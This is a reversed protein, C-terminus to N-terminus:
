RGIVGAALLARLAAIADQPHRGRRLEYVGLGGLRHVFRDWGPQGAAYPQDVALLAPVQEWPLRRLLRSSDPATEASVVVAGALRLPAPPPRGAGERLDAEFKAVGSRRHIVPSGEIWARTVNDDLFRLVDEKVHLYNAVGTALLNDPQVFVGDEALFDMGDLLGHLALTSKGAGSAGLLLVGRGEHGICAGHLPVLGLGRAALMFVAFEILEYRVHYPHALMDQSVVVLGRHHAPVLVVYNAEDMMGCLLGAGAQTRVPPPTTRTAAAERPLLRLEIRFEPAVTSFRHEPLGAYAADVLDLLDASDSEFRFRGGLIQRRVSITPRVREGFPDAAAEGQAHVDTSFTM